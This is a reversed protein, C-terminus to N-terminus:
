QKKMLIVDSGIFEIGAHFRRALYTFTGRSCFCIHTLDRIYHWQSFAAQDKVLKTMIGMWGGPKLMRFLSSIEKGPNRLHEFVETACIFDYTKSFVAPENFFFPDYLDVRLGYEALMAPLAPGPGCGFDLGTQGPELKELLPTSLRSLFGRYGPDEACNEHLDYTAKEAKTSLWYVPPVFVLDCTPCRRYRRFKDVFFSYSDADGCLPCPHEQGPSKM